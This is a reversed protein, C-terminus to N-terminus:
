DIEAFDLRLTVNDILIYDIIALDTFFFRMDFECLAAGFSLKFLENAILGMLEISELRFLIM